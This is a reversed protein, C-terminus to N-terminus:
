INKKKTVIIEKKIIQEKERMKKFAERKCIRIYKRDDGKLEVNLFSLPKETKSTNLETLYARLTDSIEKNKLLCSVINKKIESFDGVVPMVNDVKVTSSALCFLLALLFLAKM